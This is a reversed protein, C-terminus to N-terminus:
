KQLPVYRGREAALSELTKIASDMVRELPDYAKSHEIDAQISAMATEHLKEALEENKDRQERTEKKQLWYLIFFLASMLGLPGYTGLQILIKATAPDM